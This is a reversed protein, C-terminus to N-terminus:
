DMGSDLDPQGCLCFECPLGERLEKAIVETVTVTLVRHTGHNQGVKM